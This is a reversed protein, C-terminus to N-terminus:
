PIPFSFLILIPPSESKPIEKSSSDSVLTQGLCCDPLQPPGPAQCRLGHWPAPGPCRRSKEAPLEAHRAGPARYGAGSRCVPKGPVGHGLLHPLPLLSFPLSLFLPDLCTSSFIRSCPWLSLGEGFLGDWPFQWVGPCCCLGKGRLGPM